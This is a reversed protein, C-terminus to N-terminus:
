YNGNRVGKNIGRILKKFDKLDLYSKAANYSWVVVRTNKYTYGKSCDLRDLSPSFSNANYYPKPKDYSFEIGTVECFGKELKKKVWKKTIQFNPKKRFKARHWLKAARGKITKYHKRKYENAQDKHKEKYKKIQDKHNESYKRQYEKKQVKHEQYWNRRQKKIQDKHNKRYKRQYEKVENKTM